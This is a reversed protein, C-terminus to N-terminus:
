GTQHDADGVFGAGQVLGDGGEATELDVHRFDLGAGALALRPFIKEENIAGAMILVRFEGFGDFLKAFMAVEYFDEAGVGVHISGFGKRLSSPVAWATGEHNIM